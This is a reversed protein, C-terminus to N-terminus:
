HCPLLTRAGGSSTLLLVTAALLVAVTAFRKLIAPMSHDLSMMLFPPALRTTAAPEVQGAGGLRTTVRETLGYSHGLKALIVPTCCEVAFAFTGDRKTGSFKQFKKLTM